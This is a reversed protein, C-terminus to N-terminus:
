INNNVWDIEAQETQAGFLSYPCDTGGGSYNRAYNHGQINEQPINYQAVLWRILTISAREQEPALRQGATAFHEIGITHRSAGLCHNAREQALPLPTDYQPM